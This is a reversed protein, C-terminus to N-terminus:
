RTVEWRIPTGDSADFVIGDEFHVSCGRDAVVHYEWGNDGFRIVVVVSGPGDGVVVRVTSNHCGLEEIGEGVRGGISAEFTHGCTPCKTVLDCVGEVIVLDDSAGRIKM